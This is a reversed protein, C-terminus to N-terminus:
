STAVMRRATSVQDLIDVAIVATDTASNPGPPAPAVILVRSGIPLGVLGDFVGGTADAAEGVPM